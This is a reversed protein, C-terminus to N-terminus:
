ESAKPAKPKPPKPRKVPEQSAENDETLFTEISMICTERRDELLYHGSDTLEVTKAKPLRKQWERLFGPHFCFDKIGWLLLAAKDQLTPLGQEISQMTAYSPHKANMPIDQVFRAVGIRSKWDAYPYLYGAKVDEGLPKATAMWTAPGAFGNLGRVYLEGIFPMRCLNIRWPLDKSLYAATNMLVLHGVKEPFRQALGMGIAGGWDHMILHFRELQLHEVLKVVNEIHDALQYSFGTQPKESLGMGIHDPAICRYRKSLGKILNRYFFSWTPNGHLMLIAEGQGEDVYSMRGASLDLTKPSFPYQKAIVEPLPNDM